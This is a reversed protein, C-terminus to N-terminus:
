NSNEQSRTLSFLKKNRTHFGNPHTPPIKIKNACHLYHIMWVVPPMISGFGPHSSWIYYMKSKSFFFIILRILRSEGRATDETWATCEPGKYCVGKRLINPLCLRYVFAFGWYSCHKLFSRNLFSVCLFGSEQGWGVGQLGIM